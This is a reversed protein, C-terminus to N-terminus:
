GVDDYDENDEHLEDVDDYNESGNDSENQLPPPDVVLYDPLSAVDEYSCPANQLQDVDDYSESASNNDQFSIHTKPPHSIVVDQLCSTQNAVTLNEPVEKYSNTVNQLQDVDDYSESASNNDQFSIHTKPPHSMVVDQLCSTQNAVTLNEPVEEYSNTMSQTDLQTRPPLPPRIDEQGVHKFSNNMEYSSKTHNVSMAAYKAAKRRICMNIIVFLIVIVLTSAFVGVLLLLLFKQFTM